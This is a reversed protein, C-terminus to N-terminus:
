EAFKKDTPDYRDYSAQVLEYKLEKAWAEKMADFDDEKMTNRLTAKYDDLKVLDDGFMEYRRIIHWGYESKCLEASTEGPKLAKVADEFATVYGSNELPKVYGLDLDSSESYDKSNERILTRFTEEDATQAEALLEKAKAEAAALEDGTLDVGDEDQSSILIHNVRSYNESMYAKYEDDTIEQEGGEGYISELIESAMSGATYVRSFSAESIGMKEYSAGINAWYYDIVSNLNSQEEPTFSLNLEAFKKETAVLELTDELAESKVWEKANKIEDNTFSWKDGTFSAEEIKEDLASIEQTLYLLYVGAPIKEGDVTLITKTKSQNCSCCVCCVALALAAALIQKIRSM